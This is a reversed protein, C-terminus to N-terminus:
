LGLCNGDRYFVSTESETTDIPGLGRFELQRFDRRELFRQGPRYRRRHSDDWVIVGDDRLAKVCHKVCNVRDRGDIVIVHFREGSRLATRCYDGDAELPVHLFAVNDPVQSAMRIAWQPDHEVSTVHEVQNAWWMTSNGSGFEFVRMDPAVRRALFDIAPYTYWPLPRGDGDVPLNERRSNIWGSSTLYPLAERAIDETEPDYEVVDPDAPETRDTV